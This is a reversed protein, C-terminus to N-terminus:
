QLKYHELYSNIRNNKLLTVYNSKTIWSTEYEFLGRSAFFDPKGSLMKVYEKCVSAKSFNSVALYVTEGSTQVNSVELKEFIYNERNFDSLGARLLNSNAGRPYSLLFYLEESGNWKQWLEGSGATSDKVLVVPNKRLEFLDVTAKAEKAEESDPYDVIIQRLKDIGDQTKGKKIVCLASLYDFKAQFSNGAFRSDAETKILLASDFNGKKYMLYMREYLDLIERKALAPGNNFEEKAANPNDLLKLYISEPYKESLKTKYKEFEEKNGSTRYIKAIEYLVQAEYKSNPFRRLLEKYYFLAQDPQNFSNQYVGAAGLLADEIKEKALKKAEPTMPIEAYYKKRNAAVGADKSGTDGAVTGGSNDTGSSGNSKRSSIRWFDKNLRDGWFSQFEAAGRARSTPNYFPFSGMNQTGNLGGLGGGPDSGAGNKGPDNKVMKEREILKDITRERLVPDEALSLLSDQKKVTLLHRLLDSLLLSRKSIFEYDPHKEDLLNNASDYYLGARDFVRNEYFLDGLALYTTTAQSRDNGSHRLSQNLLLIGKANNGARLENKGMRYYIQGFYDINKDDRLMRKLLTNARSYDKHQLSLIEVQNIRANFAMEYPPNLKVVKSYHYEAKKYKETQQLAQALAFHMRYREMKGKIGPLSLTLHEIAKVPKNNRLYIAGLAKNLQPKLKKPFEKDNKLSVAMSEAESLKNQHYLCQFIWLRANYTILPDKFNTIVFEFIDKAAYFDGKMFYARGMLFYANDVWRSKPHKDIMTSVKKIVDDMSGQGTKLVDVSGYNYLEIFSRYDDKFGEQLALLNANWSQEANFYINYHANTNHWQRSLWGDSNGCGFILSFFLLYSFLRIFRFM